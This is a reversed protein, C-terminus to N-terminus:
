KHDWAGESGDPSIVDHQTFPMDTILVHHHTFSASSGHQTGALHETDSASIDCFAVISIM